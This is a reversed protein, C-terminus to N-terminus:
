RSDPETRTSCAGVRSDTVDGPRRTCPTVTSLMRVVEEPGRLARNAAAPSDEPKCLFGPDPHVAHVPLHDADLVSGRVEGLGDVLDHDGEDATGGVGVECPEDGREWRGLRVVGPIQNRFVRDYVARRSCHFWVALDDATLLPSEGELKPPGSARLKRM